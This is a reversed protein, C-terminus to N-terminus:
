QSSSFQVTKKFRKPTRQNAPNLHCDSSGHGPNGCLACGYAHDDRGDDSILELKPQALPALALQSGPQQQGSQQQAPWQQNYWQQQGRHPPLQISRVGQRRQQEPGRWPAPPPVLSPPTFRQPQLLGPNKPFPIQCAHSLHDASGCRKCASKNPQWNAAPLGPPKGAIRFGQSNFVSKCTEANHNPGALKHCRQCPTAPGSPPKPKVQEASESRKRKGKQKQATGAVHGERDHSTRGTSSRRQEKTITVALAQVEKLGLPTVPEYYRRDDAISELLSDELKNLYLRLYVLHQKMWDDSVEPVRFSSRALRNFEDNFDQPDQDARQRLSLFLSSDHMPDALKVFRERIAALATAWPKDVLSHVFAATDKDKANWKVAPPLAQSWCLVGEQVEAFHSRNFLATINVRWTEFENTDLKPHLNLICNTPLAPMLRPAPQAAKWAACAKSLEKTARSVAKVLRRRKNVNTLKKPNEGRREIHSDLERKAEDYTKRVLQTQWELAELTAARLDAQTQAPLAGPQHVLGTPAPTRAPM